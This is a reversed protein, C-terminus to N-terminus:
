LMGLCQAGLFRTCWIIHCLNAQHLLVDRPMCELGLEHRLPCATSPTVHRTFSMIAPQSPSSQTCQLRLLMACNRLLIKPWVRVKRNHVREGSGRTQRQLESIRVPAAHM